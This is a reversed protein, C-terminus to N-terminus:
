VSPNGKLDLPLWFVCVVYKSALCLPCVLGVRLPTLGWSLGRPGLCRSWGETSGECGRSGVGLGWDLVRGSDLGDPGSVRTWVLFKALSAGLYYVTLSPQTTTKKKSVLFFCDM